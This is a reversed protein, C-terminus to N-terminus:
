YAFLPLSLRCYARANAARGRAPEMGKGRFPRGAQNQAAPEDQRRNHRRGACLHRRTTELSIRSVGDNDLGDIREATITRVAAFKPSTKHSAPQRNSIAGAIARPDHAIGSNNPQALGQSVSRHLRPRYASGFSDDQRRCRRTGTVSRCRGNKIKTLKRFYEPIASALGGGGRCTARRQRNVAGSRHESRALRRALCLSPSWRRLRV